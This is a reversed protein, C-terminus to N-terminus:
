SERSKLNLNLFPFVIVAAWLNGGGTCHLKFCFSMYVLFFLFCINTLFKIFDLYIQHAIPDPYTDFNLTM